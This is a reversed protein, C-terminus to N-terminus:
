LHLFEEVQEVSEFRSAQQATYDAPFNPSLICGSEDMTCPGRLVAWMMGHFDTTGDDQDSIVQGEM